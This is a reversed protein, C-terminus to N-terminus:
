LLHVALEKFKWGFFKRSNGSGFVHSLDDEKAIKSKKM